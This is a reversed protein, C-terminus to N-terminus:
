HGKKGLNQIDKSIEIEEKIQEELDLASILLKYLYIINKEKLLFRKAEIDEETLDSLNIIGIMMLEEPIKIKTNVQPYISICLKIIEFLKAIIIDKYGESGSKRAENFELKDREPLNSHYYVMDKHAKEINGKNQSFTLYANYTRDIEHFISFNYKIYMKLFTEYYEDIIRRKEELQQKEEASVKSDSDGLLNYKKIVIEIDEKLKLIDELNKEEGDFKKDIILKARELLSNIETYALNSETPFSAITLIISYERIKQIADKFMKTNEEKKKEQQKKQFEQYAQYLLPTEEKTYNAPKNKLVKRIIDRAENIEKTINNLTTIPNDSFEKPIKIYSSKDPHYLPMLENYASKLAPMTVLRKIDAETKIDQNEGFFIEYAQKLTM